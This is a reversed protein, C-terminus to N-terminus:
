EVFITGKLSLYSEGILDMRNDSKMIIQLEGTRKSAQFAM